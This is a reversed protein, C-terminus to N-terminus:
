RRAPVGEVPDGGLHLLRLRADLFLLLVRDGANALAAAAADRGLLGPAAGRSPRGPALAQSARRINSSSARWAKLRLLRSTRAYRSGDSSAMGRGRDGCPRARDDDQGRDSASEQHERRGGLRLRLDPRGVELRGGQRREPQLEDRPAGAEVPGDLPRADLLRPQGDGPEEGVDPRPADLDEALALEVVQLREGRADHLLPEVGEGGQPHRADDDRLPDPRRGDELAEALLRSTGSKAVGRSVLVTM